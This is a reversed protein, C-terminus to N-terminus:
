WRRLARACGSCRSGKPSNSVVGAAGGRNSLWWWRPLSLRLVSWGVSWSAVTKLSCVSTYRRFVRCVSFVCLRLRRSTSNVSAITSAAPSNTRCPSPSIKSNRGPSRSIWSVVSAICLDVSRRLSSIRGSNARRDCASCCLFRGGSLRSVGCRIAVLTASM